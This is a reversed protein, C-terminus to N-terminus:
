KMQPPSFLPISFKIRSTTSNEQGNSQQGGAGIGWVNIGANIKGESSENVIVAVDFEVSQGILGNSDWVKTNGSAINVPNVRAGKDKAYNQAGTVGDIIEIISKQIFEKLEM